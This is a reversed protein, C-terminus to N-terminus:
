IAVMAIAAGFFAALLSEGSMANATAGDESISTAAAFSSSTSSAFDDSTAAADGSVSPTIPSSSTSTPLDSSFPLYTVSSGPIIAPQSPIEPNPQAATANYDLVNDIVHMVGNALLLDQQVIQASNVYLSAGGARITLNAGQLSQLITGNKLDPSYNVSGNVVHYRLLGGLQEVTMDKLRSGIAQFADNRPAFVTLDRTNEIYSGLKAKTIAGGVATLNFQTAEKLFVQPTILFNDIIHVLGGRFPIDATTLTSRSGLGSVQIRDKEGQKVLLVAQGGTVNSFTANDLKTAAFQPANTFSDATITHNLVHYNLIGRITDGDEGEFVSKLSSYPLKEFAANSPALVTVDETWEFKAYFDSYDELLSQLRTLNKNGSLAEKLSKQSSQSVAVSTLSALVAVYHFRM